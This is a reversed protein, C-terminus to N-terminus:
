RSTSAGASVHVIPDNTEAPAEVERFIAASLKLAASFIESENM